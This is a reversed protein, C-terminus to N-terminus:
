QVVAKSLDIDKITISSAGSKPVYIEMTLDFISDAPLSVDYSFKFTQNASPVVDEGVVFTTTNVQKGNLLITPKVMHFSATSETDNQVNLYIESEFLTVVIKQISVTVTGTAMFASSFEKSASAQNDAFTYSNITFTSYRCSFDTVLYSLDANNKKITDPAFRFNWFIYKNAGVYSGELKGFGAEAIIDGNIDSLKLQDMEIDFIETNELDNVIFMKAHLFGSEFWVRNPSVNLKGSVVQPNSYCFLDSTNASEEPETHEETETPKKTEIVGKPSITETPQAPKEPATTEKARTTEVAEPTADATTRKSVGSEEPTAPTGIKISCGTLAVLFVIIVSIACIKIIVTKM